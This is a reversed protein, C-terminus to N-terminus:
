LDRRKIVPSSTPNKLLSRYDAEDDIDTLIDATDFAVELVDEPHSQIIQRAGQDGELRLLEPKYKISFIVPHGRRGQYVPVVIGRQHKDFEILLRNIIERSVLPQDGLLIMLAETGEAVQSLGCKISSSMGERYDPNLVTRVPWKKLRAAIRKAQHGLVVITERLNSELANSVVQEIVSSRGFPLLQKARGM